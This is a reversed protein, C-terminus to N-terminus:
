ALIILKDQYIAAKGMKLASLRMNWSIEQEPVFWVTPQDVIPRCRDSDWESLALTHECIYVRIRVEREM